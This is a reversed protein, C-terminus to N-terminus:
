GSEASRRPKPPASEQPLEAQQDVVFAALVQCELNSRGLVRAPERREEGPLHLITALTRREQESLRLLTALSTRETASLGAALSVVTRLRAAAVEIVIGAVTATSMRPPLAELGRELRRALGDVFAQRDAAETAADTTISLGREWLDQRAESILAELERRREEFSVPAGM